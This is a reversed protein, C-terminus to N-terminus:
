ASNRFVGAARLRAARTSAPDRLTRSPRDRNAPSTNVSALEFLWRSVQLV